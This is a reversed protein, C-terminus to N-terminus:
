PSHLPLGPESKIVYGQQQQQIQEESDMINVPSAPEHKVTFGPNKCQLLSQQQKPQKSCTSTSTGSATTSVVTLPYQNIASQMSICPYCETEM